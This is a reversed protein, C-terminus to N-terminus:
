PTLDPTNDVRRKKVDVEEIDVVEWCNAKIKEKEIWAKVTEDIMKALVLEQEDTVEFYESAEGCDNYLNVGISEIIEEETSRWTLVPDKVRGIYIIEADQYTEIAEEIAEDKTPFRGDFNEGNDSFSYETM